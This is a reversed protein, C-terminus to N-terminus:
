QVPAFSPLFEKLTRESLYTVGFSVAIRDDGVRQGGHLLHHCGTSEQSDYAAYSGFAGANSELYAGDVLDFM